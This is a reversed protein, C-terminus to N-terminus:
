SYCRCSSLTGTDKGVAASPMQPRAAEQGVEWHGGALEGSGGSLGHYMLIPLLINQEQGSTEEWRSRQSRRSVELTVELAVEESFVEQAETPEAQERDERM